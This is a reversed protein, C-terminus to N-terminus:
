EFWLRITEPWIIHDVLKNGFMNQAQIRKLIEELLEEPDSPRTVDDFFRAM